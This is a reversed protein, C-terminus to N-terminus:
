WFIGNNREPSGYLFICFNGFESIVSKSLIRSIRGILPCAFELKIYKWALYTHWFLLFTRFIDKFFISDHKFLRWTEQLSKRLFIFIKLIIRYMFEFIHSKWTSTAAVCAVWNFEVCKSPNILGHKARAPSFSRWLCSFNLWSDVLTAYSSKIVLVQIDWARTM